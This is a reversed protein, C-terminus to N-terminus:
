HQFQVENVAFTVELNAIPNAQLGVLQVVRDDSKPTEAKGGRLLQLDIALRESYLKRRRRALGLGAIPEARVNIRCPQPGGQPPVGEAVFKGEHGDEVM